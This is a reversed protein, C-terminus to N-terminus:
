FQNEHPAIRLQADTTAFEAACSGQDHVQKLRNMLVAPGGMIGGCSYEDLGKMACVAGLLRFETVLPCNVVADLKAREATSLAPMDQSRNNHDHDVVAWYKARITAVITGYSYSSYVVAKDFYPQAEAIPDRDVQQFALDALTSQALDLWATSSDPAGHLLTKLAATADDREFPM